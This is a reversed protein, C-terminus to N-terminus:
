RPGNREGQARVWLPTIVSVMVSRKASRFYPAATLMIGRDYTSQERGALSFAQPPLSSFSKV